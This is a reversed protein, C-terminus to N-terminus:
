RLLEEIATAYRLLMIDQQWRGVIQISLPLQQPGLGFPLAICPLGLLSWASNFTAKGISNLDRPAESPASPTIFCQIQRMRFIVQRRLSLARNRAKLYTALPTSVGTAASQLLIASFQEPYRDLEFRLTRAIEYNAILLQLSLAEECSADIDLTVIETGNAAIRSTAEEVAQQTSAEAEGWARTRILAARQPMVPGVQTRRRQTKEGLLAFFLLNVSAVNSAFLGATDIFPVLPKAGALPLFGFSPKFGVVGCYAAPRITSGGTQTGLALPVMGDAVAAASGSSSGGPTYELHHPNRTGRPTVHAFEATVTKGLLIAGAKRLLAVCAADAAPQHGRYITSGYETPMDVTDFIDKIGVCLGHLLGQPKSRELTAARERAADAAVHTWANIESNRDAIRALSLETSRSIELKKDRFAAALTLADIL